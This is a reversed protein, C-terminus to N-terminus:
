LTKLRDPIARDALTNEVHQDLSDALFRLAREQGQMSLGDSPRLVTVRMHSGDDTSNVAFAFTSTREYVNLRCTITGTQSDYETRGKLRDVIDYIGSLLLRRGFPYDREM